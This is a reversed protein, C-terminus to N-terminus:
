WELQGLTATAEGSVGDRTYDIKVESGGAHMRVLASVSTGDAAPTGDIATVVDGVKLGATEAAGGKALDVILGGAHNADADTDQSSDAISAGLLGHSPQEGDILADAVRTALNSPIAFGLGASGATGNASTPSAIAVNIGILEGKGNLLAGGSNGPNISADTQIVPLTVTGGSQQQQEGGNEDPVGFRFDWPFGYGNDGNDQSQDEQAPDQPILPSGVSIGRDVASVVGSTVTNALNMPAGIAVTLDGVNLKDSDAIKVAPLSDADIKVVALDAYPDVGVIDGDLIRGDSLKVRVTADTGAAGDLTVVHANTLIYGDERYIVGSGSGASNAGAVELTVVSPTAVAAVGSINTATEGNSLTLTGGGQVTAQPQAVNSSVIASVGGGVVGGILAGLALGTILMGSRSRPHAQNASGGPSAQPAIYPPQAAAAAGTGAQQAAYEPQTAAPNAHQVAASTQESGPQPAAPNPAAPDVPQGPTWADPLPATPQTLGASASEPQVGSDQEARNGDNPNPASSEQGPTTSM